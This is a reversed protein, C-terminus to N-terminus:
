GVARDHFREGRPNVGRKMLMKNLRLELPRRETESAVRWGIHPKARHQPIPECSSRGSPVCWPRAVRAPKLIGRGVLPGIGREESLSRSIAKRYAATRRAASRLEIRSTALCDPILWPPTCLM